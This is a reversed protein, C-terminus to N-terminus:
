AKIRKRAFGMGALGIAMLALISPEPVDWTGVIVGQNPFSFDSIKLSIDVEAPLAGIVLPTIDWEFGHIMVDGPPDNPNPPFGSNNWSYSIVDPGSGFSGSLGVGVSDGNEDLLNLFHDFTSDLALDIGAGKFSLSFQYENPLEIHKMDDFTVLGQFAMSTNTTAIFISDNEIDTGVPGPDVSYTPIAMVAQAIGILFISVAAQLAVSAIKSIIM